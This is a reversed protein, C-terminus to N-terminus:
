AGLAERVAATYRAPQDRRISHGAGPVHVIALQSVLGRLVELDAVSPMSGLAADGHVVTVPCTIARLVARVDITALHDPTALTVARPDFALKSEVWPEIEAEPWGPNQTVAEHRLEDRTLRKLAAIGATASRAHDADDPTPGARLWLAPPDELVIASPLDPHLGAVAMATVAGLSHGLIVPRELGLEGIVTVVDGATDELRWGDDPAESRGHGRADITIVEYADAFAEAVPIWCRGDDTFGHLLVLPPRPGGTREVHLRIGNSRVETATWTVM